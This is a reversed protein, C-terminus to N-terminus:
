LIVKCFKLIRGHRCSTGVDFTGTVFVASAAGLVFTTAGAAHAALRLFLLPLSTAPTASTTRRATSRTSALTFLALALESTQLKARSMNTHYSNAITRLLELKTFVKMMM